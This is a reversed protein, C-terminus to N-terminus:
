KYIKTVPEENKVRWKGDNLQEDISPGIKTILKLAAEVTNENVSKNPKDGTVM